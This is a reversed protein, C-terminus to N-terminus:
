KGEQREYMYSFVTASHIANEMQAADPLSYCTEVKVKTRIPSNSFAWRGPDGILIIRRGARSLEQFWADLQAALDDSYFMDGVLFVEWRPEMLSDILNETTFDIHDPNVGNLEANMKTVSIADPFRPFQSFHM